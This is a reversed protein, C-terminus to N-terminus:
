KNIITQIFRDSALRLENLKVEFCPPRNLLKIDDGFSSDIVSIGLYRFLDDLRAQGRSSNQIYVVKKNFRLALCICHFSDSLVFEADYIYRVWKSVEEYENLNGNKCYINHAKSGFEKEIESLQSLFDKNIDLKYYVFTKNTPKIESIISQIFEDQVQLLPDLVHSADVDFVERCIKVGSTERCSIAKFKILQEKALRTVSHDSDMEWYGAGFSAAYSFKEVNDPVFPLFFIAPDATMKPRWVQDSGVVITNYSTSLEVFEDLNSIRKSRQLFRVRFREFAESNSRNENQNPELVGCTLLFNKLYSKFNAKKRPVYDIHEVNVGEKSLIYELAAAQLVAGYNHNSYQFNLLGIKKTM